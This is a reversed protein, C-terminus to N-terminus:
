AKDFLKELGFTEDIPFAIGLTGNDDDINCDTLEFFVDKYNSVYCAVYEGRTDGSQSILMTYGAKKAKELESENNIWIYDLTKM